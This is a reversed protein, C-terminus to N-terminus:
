KGLLSKTYHTVYDDASGGSTVLRIYDPLKLNRHLLRTAVHRGCTNLDDSQLKRTNHVIRGRHSRLVNKLLPLTEHLAERESEDLWARDGDIATGFSDCVEIEDGNRMIAIWHGTNEDETLFLLAGLGASNFLSDLSKNALEPYRTCPLDKGVLRKLDDDSLSYAEARKLSM